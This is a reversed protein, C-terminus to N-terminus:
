NTSYLSLENRNGERGSYREPVTDVLDSDWLVGAVKLCTVDCCGVRNQM